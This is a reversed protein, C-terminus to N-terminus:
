YGRRGDKARKQEGLAMFRSHRLHRGEMWELFEVRAVLVPRVWRCDKMKDATLGEGWRGPRREPLNCFPCVEVELPKMKRLLEARLAPTFGSRTRAVYVLKGDVVEGVIVADFTSGGVSYGGIIFEQSRNVRMKMWAGSRQGSEYRSNARKAVLGELGQARISQNLDPPSAVLVPSCRVPEPLNSLVHNELLERRKVLPEGTVDRGGLMLVDFAYFHVDTAGNQLLSFVPKGSADLAVIEGDIVTEDPLERLAAVVGPYRKTFDKDNRSRLRVQGGSKIALARYGDFKLEYLWGDGEPLKDTRLLLM